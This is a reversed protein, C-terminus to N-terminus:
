NAGQGSVRDVIMQAVRESEKGLSFRIANVETEIKRRGDEV